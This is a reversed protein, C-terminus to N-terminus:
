EWVREAKEGTEVDGAADGLKNVELDALPVCAIQGRVVAM